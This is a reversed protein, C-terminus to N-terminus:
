DFLPTIKDELSYDVGIFDLPQDQFKNKTFGLPFHPIIRQLNEELSDPRTAKCGALNIQAGQMLRWRLNCTEMGAIPQLENTLDQCLSLRVLIMHFAQLRLKLKGRLTLDRKDIDMCAAINKAERLVELNELPHCLQALAATNGNQNFRMTASRGVRSDLGALIQFRNGLQAQGRVERMPHYDVFRIKGVLLRVDLKGDGSRVINMSAYAVGFSRLNRIRASWFPSMGYRCM